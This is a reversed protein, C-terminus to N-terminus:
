REITRDPRTLEDARRLLAALGDLDLDDLKQFGVSASGLKVKGLRDAHDALLYKGDAAANVYLSFHAKQRALGVAFWEVADGRPRPQVIDGYGIIHQDTGGWFTGTWLTRSRGPMAATIIADLEIMTARVAEPLEALYEDPSTDVREM